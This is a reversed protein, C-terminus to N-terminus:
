QPYITLQILKDFDADRSQYELKSALDPDTDIISKRLRHAAHIGDAWASKAAAWGPHGITKTDAPLPTNEVVRALVSEQIGKEFGALLRRRELTQGCYSLRNPDQLRTIARDLARRLRIPITPNEKIMEQTVILGSYIPPPGFRTKITEYDNRFLYRAGLQLAMECHPEWLMMVDYHTLLEHLKSEVDKHIEGEGFNAEADSLEVVTASMRSEATLKPGLMKTAVYQALVHTTSPSRYAAIQVINRKRQAADARGIWNLTMPWAAVGSSLPYITQLSTYALCMYPDCIAIGNKPNELLRTATSRDDLTFHSSTIAIHEEQLYGLDEALYLPLYALLNKFAILTLYDTTRSFILQEHARLATTNNEIAAEFKDLKDIPLEDIKDTIKKHSSNSARTVDVLYFFIGFFMGFMSMPTVTKDVLDKCLFAAGIVIGIAAWPHEKLTRKARESRSPDRTEIPKQHKDTM